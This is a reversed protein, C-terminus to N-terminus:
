DQGDSIFGIEFHEAQLYITSPSVYTDDCFVSRGSIWDRHYVFDHREWTVPSQLVMYFQAQEM